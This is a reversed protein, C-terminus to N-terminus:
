PAKYRYNSTLIDKELSWRREIRLRSLTVQIIVCVLFYDSMAHNRNGYLGRM